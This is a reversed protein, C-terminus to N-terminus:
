QMVQPSTMQLATRQPGSQGNRATQQSGSQQVPEGTAIWYKNGDPGIGVQGDKSIRQYQAQNGPAPKFQGGNLVNMNQDAAAGSGKTWGPVWPTEYGYRAFLDSAEPSVNMLHRKTNGYHSEDISKIRGYMLGTYEAVVKNITNLGYNTNINNLGQEIAEKYPVTGGAAVKEVESNVKQQIAQYAIPDPDGAQVGFWNKIANWAPQDHNKLAQAAQVLMQLHQAATGAGIIAQGNKSNGSADEMMVKRNTAYQSDSYTPNIYTLIYSNAESQSMGHPDGKKWVRNAHQTNALQYHAQAYLSAFNEPIKVGMAQLKKRLEERGMDQMDDTLNFNDPPTLMAEMEDASKQDRDQKANALDEEYHLKVGNLVEQRHAAVLDNHMNIADEGGMLSKILGTTGAPVKGAEEDRQMRGDAVGATGYKQFVEIANMIAPNSAIQAKVDVPDAVPTPGFDSANVGAQKMLDDVYGKIKDASDGKAYKTGLYQAPSADPFRKADLLLQALLAKHGEEKSDFIRFGDKDVKQGAAYAKLNGRNNNRNGRSNPDDGTDHNEMAKALADFDPTGDATKFLTWMSGGTSGGHVPTGKNWENMQKEFLQIANAKQLGSLIFHARLRADTPIQIPSGDSSVYGPIKHDQLTKLVDPPISMIKNPDIIAMRKNWVQVGYSNRAISGDANYKPVVEVPIAMDRTVHYKELMDPSDDVTDKIAGLQQLEDYVGKSNTVDRMQMEYDMNALTMQNRLTTFNTQAITAQRTIAADQNAVDDKARQAEQQQAQQVQASTTAFGAGAARAAAGTGQQQLGSLAGTIAEMAIAMGIDARSVPVKTYTTKGTNIDINQKYRTGGALAEALDRFKFARQMSPDTAPTSLPKAPVPAKSLDKQPVQVNDAANDPTTKIGSADTPAIQLPPRQTQSPPTDVSTVAGGDPPNSVGEYPNTSTANANIDTSSAPSTSVSM